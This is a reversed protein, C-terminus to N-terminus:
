QEKTTLLLNEKTQENIVANAIRRFTESKNLGFNKIKSDIKYFQLETVRFSVVKEFTTKRKKKKDTTNM